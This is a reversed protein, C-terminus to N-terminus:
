SFDTYLAFRLGEKTIFDHYKPEIANNMAYKKFMDIEQQYNRTYPTRHEPYQEYYEKGTLAGCDYKLVDGIEDNIFEDWTYKNGYEDVICANNSEIFNKISELVPEYYKLDNADWDFVWGGSRKGLHIRNKDIEEKVEFIEAEIADIDYPTNNILEIAKELNKTVKKKVPLVAYFNTGM